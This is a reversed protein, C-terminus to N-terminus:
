AVGLATRAASKALDALGEVQKGFQKPGDHYPYISTVHASWDPGPCVSQARTIHDALRDAGAKAFGEQCFRLRGEFADALSLPRDKRVAVYVLAPATAPATSNKKGSPMSTAFNEIFAAALDAAMKRDEGSNGLLQKVDVSAYRYLTGSAFEPTGMHAAGKKEEAVPLDEAVTFYDIETTIEHVSFAHAVQVAAEVNVEPAAALMRGFLGVSDNHLASVLVKRVDDQALATVKLETEKKGKRGKKVKEDESAEQYAAWAQALEEVHPAVLEALAALETDSVFLIVNNEEDTTATGLIHFVAKAASIATEASLGQGLIEALRVDPHRTRWTRSEHGAEMALRTARKWAQSSVRLRTTGGFQTTKPSGVDDRNLNSFPVTQIIHVDIFM